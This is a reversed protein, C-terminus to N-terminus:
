LILLHDHLAGPSFCEWYFFYCSCLGKLHFSSLVNSSCSPAQMAVPTLLFSPPLRLPFALLYWGCLAHYPIYIKICTCLPAISVNSAVSLCSSAEIFTKRQTNHSSCLPTPHPCLSSKFQQTPSRENSKPSPPLLISHIFAHESFGICFKWVHIWKILPFMQYRWAKIM